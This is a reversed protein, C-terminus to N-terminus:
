QVYNIISLVKENCDFKHNIKYTIQDNCCTFTDTELVNKCVASRKGNCKCSEVKREILCLKARVLYSSLRHASRYSVMPQPTFTRKVEQDMHLLYINNNVISSLSKPLPHYTVVLPIGKQTKSNSKRKINSFKVQDMEASILKETYGRKLFWSRMNAKHKIFNKEYSCLRSIHLTQSFIVSRKTHNPHASLYHLYQHHDTFKVYFDTIIKSNKVSVKLDFFAINEKFENLSHLFTQLEQKGHIWIFIIDDIYRFWASPQLEQTKFFATEIKDIFLCAYPPSFKTGIATVSIQQRIQGNFEFYEKELVFDAM